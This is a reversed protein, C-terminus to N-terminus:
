FIIEFPPSRADSLYGVTTVCKGIKWLIYHLNMIPLPVIFHTVEETVVSPQNNDDDQNKERIIVVTATAVVVAVITTAHVSAALKFQYLLL